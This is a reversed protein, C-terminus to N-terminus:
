LRWYIYKEKQAYDKDFIGKIDILIRSSGIYLDKLNNINFKEKLETHPVAMIIVDFNNMDELKSIKIDEFIHNSSAYYPDYIKINLNYEKLEKIIDFVKSYSTDACNEKFTIGFIGINSNKVTYGENIMLKIINETIYKGIGDNIQRASKMLKSDIGLKDSKYILYYPDIGICNGGVLGPTFSLFNWKTNCADLVTKLDIGMKNLIASIENMFAINIDRQSNEIVKAAEAIKIDDVKYVGAKIITEYVQSIEQLAENDCGSVIKIINTLVNEKDSPNIREPSYGVKFEKKYKLNSVSELIPVCIEETLGPYVTSEYVVIDGKRMHKAVTNSAGIVPQLNPTRDNNIPTPVAIIYFNARDLDDENYTFEVTCNKLAKDGVENIVDVYNKYNEIKKKDIDFGIVKIYKSFEIALPLGVYGLGIIAIIYEDHRDM